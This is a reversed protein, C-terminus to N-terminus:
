RYSDAREPTETASESAVAVLAFVIAPLVPVRWLFDFGSHVLFASGSAIAVIASPTTRRRWLGTGPLVIAIVIAAAGIVGTEATAQLYENHAHYVVESGETTRRTIRFTGPGTGAVPHAVIQDVTDSWNQIRENGSDDLRSAVGASAVIAVAALALPAAKSLREFRRTALWSGAAVSALAAVIGVARHELMQLALWVGFAGACCQFVVRMDRVLALWVVVAIAWGLVGARSQTAAVGASLLVAAGLHLRSGDRARSLAIPTAIAFLSAAANQYTLTSSLRWGGADFAFRELHFAVGVIGLGAAVAAPVVIADFVAALGSDRLARLAVMSLGVCFALTLAPKVSAGPFGNAAASIALAAALGAFPVRLTGPLSLSRSVLGGVAVAISGIVVQTTSFLGQAAVAYMCVAALIGAAM